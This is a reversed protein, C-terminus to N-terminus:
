NSNSNSLKELHSQALMRLYKSLTVGQLTALEILEKKLTPGVKVSIMKTKREASPPPTIM